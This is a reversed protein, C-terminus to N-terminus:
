LLLDFLEEENLLGLEVALAIALRYTTKDPTTSKYCRDKLPCTINCEFDYNTTCNGKEEILLMIAIDDEVYENNIYAM